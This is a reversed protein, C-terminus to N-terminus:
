RFSFESLEATGGRVWLAAGGCQAPASTQVVTHGDITLFQGDPTLAFEIDHWQDDLPQVVGALAAGDSLNQIRFAGVGYDFQIGSGSLGLHGGHDDTVTALGIGFGGAESGDFSIGRVRGTMKLRCRPPGAQILGSSSTSETATLTATRGNDDFLTELSGFLAWTSFDVYVAGVEPWGITATGANPSVPDADHGPRAFTLRAITFVLIAILPVAVATIVVWLWFRRRETM